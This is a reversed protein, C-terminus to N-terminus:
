GFGVGSGRRDANQINMEKKPIEIGFGPFSRLAIRVMIM